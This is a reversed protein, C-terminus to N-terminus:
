RHKHNIRRKTPEIWFTIGKLLYLIMQIEEYRSIYYPITADNDNPVHQFPFKSVDIGKRILIEEIATKETIFFKKTTKISNSIDELYEVDNERMKKIKITYKENKWGGSM